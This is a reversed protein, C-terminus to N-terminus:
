LVPPILPGANNTQGDLAHRARTAAAQAERNSPDIELAARLTDLATKYDGSALLSRALVLNDELEARQVPPLGRASKAKLMRRQPLIRVRAARGKVQPDAIALPAGPANNTAVAQVARAAPQVRDPSIPKARSGILALWAVMAASYFACRRVKSNAGIALVQQLTGSAPRCWGPATSSAAALKPPLVKERSSSDVPVIKFYCRTEQKIEPKSKLPELSLDALVENVISAGIAKQGNAFGVSLAHFCLNNINRPIGESGHAILALAEPTFLQKGTFGAVRLRHGIYHAVEEDTFPKLRSVISIRQRLQTMNASALKHALQPQGALVLHMLKARPNEFNSLMRVTELVPDDLNQAEDIVLVFSRSAHREKILIENLQAQMRILDDDVVDVGLDDLLSQLLGRSDCQTQFLFATRASHRLKELFHFLLTTKGMGPPAILAQFGRASRIGYYLSALAERHSHSFDLFRPDPTVGFPQERLGYYELFM